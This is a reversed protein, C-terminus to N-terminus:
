KESVYKWSRKTLKKETHKKLLADMKKKLAPNKKALENWASEYNPSENEGDKTVKISYSPTELVTTFRLLGKELFIEQFKKLLPNVPEVSEIKTQLHEELKSKIEDAKLKNTKGEEQLTYLVKVLKTVATSHKGTMLLRVFKVEEMLEDFSLANVDVKKHAYDFAIENTDYCTNELGSTKQM